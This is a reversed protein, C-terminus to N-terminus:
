VYDVGSYLLGTNSLYTDILPARPVGNVYQISAFQKSDVSYSYSGAYSESTKQVDQKANIAKIGGLSYLYEIEACIAMRVRELVNQHLSLLEDESHNTLSEILSQSIVNLRDFENTEQGHYTDEYFSTDVIM